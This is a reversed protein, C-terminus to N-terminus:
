SSANVLATMRELTGTRKWNHYNMKAHLKMDFGGKKKEEEIKKWVLEEPLGLEKELQPMVTPDKRQQNNWWRKGSYM